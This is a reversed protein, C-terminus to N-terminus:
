PVQVTNLIEHIIDVSTVEEAEAEYTVGIRHRLVDTCVARIDEPIVYGRRNLFAYAKTAHAIAISARPAAGYVIFSNFKSLHYMEPNRTVFVIDIIYKEIKEDM